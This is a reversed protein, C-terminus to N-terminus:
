GAITAPLSDCSEEQLGWYLAKRPYTPLSPDARNLVSAHRWVLELDDRPPSHCWGAVYRYEAFGQDSLIRNALNLVQKSSLPEGSRNFDAPALDELQIRIRGTSLKMVEAGAHCVLGEDALKFASGAM